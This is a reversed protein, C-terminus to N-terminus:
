AVVILSFSLGSQSLSVLTELIQHWADAQWERREVLTEYLEIKLWPMFISPSLMQPIELYTFFLEAEFYTASLDQFPQVPLYELM